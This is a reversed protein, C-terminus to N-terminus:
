AETDDLSLEIVKYITNLFDMLQVGDQVAIYTRRIDKVLTSNLSLFSSDLDNESISSKVDSGSSLIAIKLSCMASKLETEYDQLKQRTKAESSIKAIQGNTRAQNIYLMHEEILYYHSKLALIKQFFSFIETKNLVYLKNITSLQSFSDAM